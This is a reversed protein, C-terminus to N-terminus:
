AGPAAPAASLPPAAPPKAFDIKEVKVEGGVLQYVYVTARAGAGSGVGDDLDMLVFSPRPDPAMPSYAGTASGPNIQLRDEVVAAKFEHTHGTVLIDAGMSRQLVALADRDGWPVSQHGHCLGIRFGAITVVKLPPAPTHTTRTSNPTNHTRARGGGGLAARVFRVLQEPSEFDDFDGQTVNVDSCIGRLFELM